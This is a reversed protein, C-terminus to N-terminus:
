EIKQDFQKEAATLKMYLMAHQSEKRQSHNKMYHANHKKTERAGDSGM